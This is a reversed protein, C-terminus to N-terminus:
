GMPAGPPPGPPGDGRPGRPGGPGGHHHRPPPLFCASSNIRQKIANAQAETIKKNALAKDVAAVAASKFAARVDDGSKNLRQAVGDTVQNCRQLRLQEMQAQTPREGNRPPKPPRGLSQHTARLANRLQTTTVGLKSAVASEYSRDFVRNPAPLGNRPANARQGSTRNGPAAVSLSAAVLASCVAVTLATRIIRAM